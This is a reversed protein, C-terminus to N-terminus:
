KSSMWYPPWLWTTQAFITINAVSEVKTQMNIFILHCGCGDQIKTLCRKQDPSRNGSPINYM